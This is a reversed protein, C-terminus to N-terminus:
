VNHAHRETINFYPISLSIITLFQISKLYSSYGATYIANPYVNPPNNIPYNSIPILM